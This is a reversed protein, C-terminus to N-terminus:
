IKRWKDGDWYRWAQETIVFFIRGVGPPILRWGQYYLAVHHAKGAWPGHPDAALLLLTGAPPNTAPPQRVEAQQVAGHMLADIRLLAENVTLKKQAQHAVLMPLAFNPTQEM